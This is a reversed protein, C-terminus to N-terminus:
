ILLYQRIVVTKPNTETGFLTTDILTNTQINPSPGPDTAVETKTGDVRLITPVAGGPLAPWFQKMKDAQYVGPLIAGDTNRLYLNRRDPVRFNTGNSYSFKRNNNGTGWDAYNCVQSPPLKQVYDEYLRKYTAVAMNSGDFEQVNFEVDTNGDTSIIRGVTLFNGKYEHVRWEGVSPEWFLSMTECVGGTIHDLNGKGFDITDGAYTVLKVNVHSGIGWEFHILRKEPVTAGEPLTIEFYPSAGKIVIKKGIDADTLVTAGTVIMVDTFADSIPGPSANRLVPDFEVNFLEDPQFTDGTQLLTLVGTASDWTYQVGKYMTGQGVREVYIERNRWDFTGATGDFTFSTAGAVLGPTLDTQIEIPPYYFIDDSDPTFHYDPVLTRVVTVGSMEMLRFIHTVRELGLFNVTRAGHAASFTQSQVIALPSSAKYVAYKLDNTISPFAATYIRFNTTSM